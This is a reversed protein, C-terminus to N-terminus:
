LTCIKQPRNLWSEEFEYLNWNVVGNVTVDLNPFLRSIVMLRRKILWWYISKCKGVFLESEMQFFFQCHWYRPIRFMLHKCYVSLDMGYVNVIGVTYRSITWWTPGQFSKKWSWFTALPLCAIRSIGSFSISPVCWGRSSKKVCFYYLMTVKM